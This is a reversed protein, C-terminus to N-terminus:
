YKQEEPVEAEANTAADAAAGVKKAVESTKDAVTQVGDKAAEATNQAAAEAEKAVEATKDAIDAKAAEVTEGAKEKTQDSCAALVAVGALTAILLLKKM